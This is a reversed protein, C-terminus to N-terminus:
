PNAMRNSAVPELAIKPGIPETWTDFLMFESSGVTTSKWIDYRVSTATVTINAFTQTDLHKKSANGANGVDIQWTGGASNQYKSYVHTHGCIFACVGKDELLAWFADRNDPYKDLSNSVHRHFPFAPEHGFVFVVPQTNADLDAKLWDYLAPMIDGDTGIDSNGDWYQNLMVFHANGFDWSYTTEKCTVPGDKHTFTKLASRDGHGVNYEDRLWTMDAPTEAEHNGIGPYWIADTGHRLNIKDRLLQPNDKPDIDGPSVHFAGPGGVNDNMAVLLYDWRTLQSRPDATVTFHFESAVRAEGYGRYLYNATLLLGLTLAIAGISLLYRRKM